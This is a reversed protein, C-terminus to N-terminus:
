NDKKIFLDKIDPFWRNNNRLFKNLNIFVRLHILVTTLDSIFFLVVNKNM